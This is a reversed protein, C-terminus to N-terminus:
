KILTVTTADVDSGNISLYTKGSQVSVSAVTGTVAANGSGATVTKGILAASQALQNAGAFGTMTQNLTQMESLSSFQALQALMQTQDVPNAPDQNKLQTVLLQLFQDQNVMASSAKVTGDANTNPAVGSANTFTVPM